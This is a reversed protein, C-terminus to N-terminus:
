NPTLSVDLNITQGSVLTVETEYPNYGPKSVTIRYTDPVYGIGYEGQSNTTVPANNGAISVRAGEIPQQSVADRVAGRIRGAYTGDFSFVWLGTQIDSILVTGSPLFPYCGWAGRLGDEWEPHTDYSGAEVPLTPDTIDIVRLGEAYYSAYAFDGRVYVNHITALPHATYEGAQFINELDLISWVRLHGGPVEDTTLFYSGDGTLWGNHTFAAPYQKRALVRPNSKDSVDVIAFGNSLESAYAINDRVYSDHVYREKYVGEEVPFVPDGNLNLFNMGGRSSSPPGSAGNIYAFGEVQDVFVTHANGVTATYTNVLAPPSQSLDIIQVGGGAETTVYAYKSFTQIERWISNRGPIFAVEVPNSPDTVEVISTGARTGLLAYERGEADSYGWVGAYGADRALNEFRGLLQVTRSGQAQSESALSLLSLALLAVPIWVRTRPETM